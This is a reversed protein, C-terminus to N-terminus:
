EQLEYIDKYLQIDEASLLQIKFDDTPKTEALTEGFGLFFTALAIMLPLTFIRFPKIQFM